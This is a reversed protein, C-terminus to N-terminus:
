PLFVYNQSFIFFPQANKKAKKEELMGLSKESQNNPSFFDESPYNKATFQRVFQLFRTKAYKVSSKARLGRVALDLYFSM